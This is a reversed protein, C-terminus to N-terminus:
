QPWSPNFRSSLIDGRWGWSCSPCLSERPWWQCLPIAKLNETLIICGSGRVRDETPSWFATHGLENQVAIAWGVSSLTVSSGARSKRQTLVPQVQAFGEKNEPPTPKKLGQTGWTATPSGSGSVPGARAAGRGPRDKEAAFSLGSLCNLPGARRRHASESALPTREELMNSIDGSVGGPAPSGEPGTKLHARLCREPWM